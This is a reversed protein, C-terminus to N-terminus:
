PTAFPILSQTYFAKFQAAPIPKSILYGQVIDCNLQSLHAMEEPQELGEAIVLFNLQEAM